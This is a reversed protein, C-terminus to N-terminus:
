GAVRDVGRPRPGNMWGSSGGGEDGREGGGGERASGCEAENRTREGVSRTRLALRSSHRRSCRGAPRHEAAAPPAPRRHCAWPRHSGWRGHTGWCWCDVAHWRTRPGSLDRRRVQDSPTPAQRPPTPPSSTHLPLPTACHWNCLPDPPSPRCRQQMAHRACRVSFTYFSEASDWTRRPPRSAWTRLNRHRSPQHPTYPATYAGLTGQFALHTRVGDIHQRDRTM